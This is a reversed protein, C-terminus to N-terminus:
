NGNFQSCLCCFTLTFNGQNISPSFTPAFKTPSMTPNSSFTAILVKQTTDPSILYILDNYLVTRYTVPSYLTAPSKIM